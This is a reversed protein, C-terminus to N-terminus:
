RHKPYIGQLWEDYEDKTYDWTGDNWDLVWELIFQLCDEETMNNEQARRSYNCFARTLPIIDKKTSRCECLRDYVAEPLHSQWDSDKSAKVYRKM